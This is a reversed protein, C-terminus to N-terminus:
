SWYIFIGVLFVFVGDVVCIDVKNEICYVLLNWLVSLVSKFILEKKVELVCEMLVKVSGVEWLM